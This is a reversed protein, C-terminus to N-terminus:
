WKRKRSKTKETVFGVACCMDDVKRNSAIAADVIAKAVENPGARRGYADAVISQFEMISLCDAPGDSMCVVIDGAEVPLTNYKARKAMAKAADIDLDGDNYHSLQVPGVCSHGNADICQDTTQPTSNFKVVFTNLIIDPSRKSGSSHGCKYFMYKQLCREPNYRYYFLADCATDFPMRLMCLAHIETRTILM